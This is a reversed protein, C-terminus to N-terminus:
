NNKLIKKLIKKLKEEDLPKEIFNNIGIKKVQKRIDIDSMASVVIINAEKNYELIEESAKLGNMLPMTLDMLVLDPLLEKYKKVGEKGNKATGSLKLDLKDIVEKEMRHVLKSDDIILVEYQNGNKKRM